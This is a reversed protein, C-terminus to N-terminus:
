LTYRASKQVHAGFVPPDKRDAPIDAKRQVADPNANWTSNPNASCRAISPQNCAAFPWQSLPPRVLSGATQRYTGDSQIIATNMFLGQLMCRGVVDTESGCTTTPDYQHQGSQRRVLEHLQQRVRLAHQITKGNVHNERLWRGRGKATEEHSLALYARLVNLHTLHDGDRHVFKTRSAAASERDAARDIFLPGSNILALIDIIESTCGMAPDFSAILIRAHPPDLPYKLMERGLATISTPGDLAGLGALTQFAAGVLTVCRM